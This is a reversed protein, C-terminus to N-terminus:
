DFRAIETFLEHNARGTVFTDGALLWAHAALAGGEDRRVGLRLSTPVRRRTLMARAAVSQALCAFRLPSREVVRRIAWRVRLAKRARDPGPIPSRSGGFVRGLWRFPLARVSVGALLLCGLAEVLTARDSWPGPYSRSRDITVNPLSEPM